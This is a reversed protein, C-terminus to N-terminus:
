PAIATLTARLEQTQLPSSPSGWRFSQDFRIVVETGTPITAGPHIAEIGSHTFRKAMNEFSHSPDPSARFEDFAGYEGEADGVLGSGDLDFDLEYVLTEPEDSFISYVFQSFEIVLVEGAGLHGDDDTDVFSATATLPSSASTLFVGVVSETEFPSSLPAVRLEVVFLQGEPWPGADPVLRVMAGEVRTEFTPREDSNERFISAHHVVVPATFLIELGGDAPVPMSSASGGMLDPANSAEISLPADERPMPRLQYVHSGILFLERASVVGSTGRYDWHGDGDADIREFRYAIEGDLLALEGLNPLGECVM